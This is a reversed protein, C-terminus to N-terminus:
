QYTNALPHEKKNNSVRKVLLFLVIIIVELCLGLSNWTYFSFHLHDMHNKFLLISLFGLTFSIPFLFKNTNSQYLYSCCYNIAYLLYSIKSFITPFWVVVIILDLRDLFDTLKIQQILIHTPYTAEKVLNTGLVVIELILIIFFLFLGLATGTIVAKRAERIPNINAVIVLFFLIEGMWSFSFYVSKVLPLFADFTPLPQLNGVEWENILLFPLMLIIITFIVFHFSNIRSIVELGAFAIYPIVLVSLVMLMDIPTNPLLDTAVFDVVGKLDRLIALIIFVLFVLIFIKEIWNSKNGIVFVSKLSEANNKKGFLMYIIIFLIPFELIPVLWANQGGVIVLIQPLSIISSSFIFNAVLLILQLNSIIQKM